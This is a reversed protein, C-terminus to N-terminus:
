EVHIGAAAVVRQWQPVEQHLRHQMLAPGDLRMEAGMSAFRAQMAPQASLAALAAAFRATIEAPLGAPGAIGYWNLAEYGPLAEAAAPIEPMAALRQASTTALYRSRGARVHPLTEVTSAFVMDIEGTLMATTAPAAGRYSVQTMQVGALHAFLAGSLHNNSGTGGSGYTLEGPRARATAILGPIDRIPSPAAVTVMTPVDAVVSIPTIVRLTDLGASPYLAPISSLSSSTLVFASGDPPAQVVARLGISGGAGPRNDIIFPQGLAERLPEALIRGINDIPGGAGFPIIIRVPKNPWRPGIAPAGFPASPQIPGGADEAHAARALFPLALAARRLIM